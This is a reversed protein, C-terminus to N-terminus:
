RAAMYAIEATQMYPELTEGDDGVFAQAPTDLAGVFESARAQDSPLVLAPFATGPRERLRRSRRRAPSVSRCAAGAPRGPPCAGVRAMKEAGAPGLRGEVGHANRRVFRTM